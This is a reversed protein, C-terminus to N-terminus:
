CCFLCALLLDTRGPTLFFTTIESKEKKRSKSEILSMFFPVGATKMLSIVVGRGMIDFQSAHKDGVGSVVTFSMLVFGAQTTLTSLIDKEQKQM